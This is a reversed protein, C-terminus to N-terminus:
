ERLNLGDYEEHTGIWRVFVLHTRYNVETVLRYKNAAINFVVFRGVISASGFQAKLDHNTRWNAVEVVARWVRLPKAAQKEQEAYKRLRSWTIVRM